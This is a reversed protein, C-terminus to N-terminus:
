RAEENVARGTLMRDVLSIVDRIQFPKTLYAAAGAALLHRRQAPMADASLIVVPVDRTRPDEWVRRLVEEGTLRPIHLDLLVLDPRRERIMQLGTEGDPAHLVTVGPRRRLIMEMLRVNPQNDEVYLVTGVVDAGTAPPPLPAAEPVPAGASTPLEIAFRSGRDITSEASVSGEMAQVLGRVLALGLGTGEVGSQEAGLREFPTFLLQLKEPPIGSGTDEVAVAVRDGAAKATVRVKGHDRNYKVANSLLNVLIQGLRQRDARVHLEPAVDITLSLHRRDLLPQILDTVHHVVEGVAVSELSVSLRGAEIRAIDLVEDILALLHQGGRAIHALGDRQSPQAELELVQAFGLIANLPTRLDHSMRSIFESKARNAREAEARAQELSRNAATLEGTREAVRAELQANLERLATEARERERLVEVERVARRVAGPLKELRHKLVYDTAGAKLREIAVEDGMSGSVYVFPVEPWQASALDFAAIGDFSPLSMDALILDPREGLAAAFTERSNVPILTCEIGNARLTAAVLERDLPDDELHVVRLTM